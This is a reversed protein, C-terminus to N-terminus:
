RAILVPREAYHVVRDSVSGLLLGRFQGYGRSGVVILDADRAEAARIIAEAAPGELVDLEAEIGRDTLEAVLSEGTERAAHIEKADEKSPSAIRPYAPFAVVVIIRSSFREALLVATEVARRSGESGDYALLLTQMAPSDM